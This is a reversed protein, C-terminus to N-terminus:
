NEKGKFRKFREAVMIIIISMLYLVFIPLSVISQNVPDWTPTIIAGIIFSVILAFKWQRLMWRSTIIGMGSLILAVVPIEFVAGISILLCLMATIYNGIRIQPEAIGSGFSTLFQIAPPLVVFYGFLIGCIFLV